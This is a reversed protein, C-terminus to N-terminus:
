ETDRIRRSRWYETSGLSNELLDADGRAQSQPMRPLDHRAAWGEFRVAESDAPIIFGDLYVYERGVEIGKLLIKMASVWDAIEKALPERRLSTTLCRSGIQELSEDVVVARAFTFAKRCNLCTFLWGCGCWPCELQLPSNILATVCRCFSVADDNAKQLYVLRAQQRQKQTFM